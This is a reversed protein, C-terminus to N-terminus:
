LEGQRGSKKEVRNKTPFPRLRIKKPPRATPPDLRRGKGHNCMMQTSKVEFLRGFQMQYIKIARIIIMKTKMMKKMMEIIMTMARLEALFM